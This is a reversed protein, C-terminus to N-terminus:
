LILVISWFSFLSYKVVVGFGFCVHIWFGVSDVFGKKLMRCRQEVLVCCLSEGIVKYLRQAGQGVMHVESEFGVNDDCSM